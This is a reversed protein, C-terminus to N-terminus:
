FKWPDILSRFSTRRELPEVSLDRWVAYNNGELKSAITVANPGDSLHVHVHYILDSQIQPQVLPPM